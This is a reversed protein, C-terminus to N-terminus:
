PSVGSSPLYHNKEKRFIFLDSSFELLILSRELIAIM